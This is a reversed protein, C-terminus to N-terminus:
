GGEGKGTGLERGEGGAGVIGDDPVPQPVSGGVAVFSRSRVLAIRPRPSHLREGEGGAIGVRLRAIIRIALRTVIRVRM